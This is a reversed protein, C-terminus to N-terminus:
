KLGVSQYFENLKKEERADDVHRISCILGNANFTLIQECRHVHKKNRHTLYDTFHVVFEKDNVAEVKSEGWELDDLKERGEMMNKEYSNCIEDPGVLLEEGIFYTCDDSLLKRTLEFQDKDLTRGFEIAVQKNNKM